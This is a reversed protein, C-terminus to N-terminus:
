LADTLEANARRIMVLGPLLLMTGLAGLWGLGILNPTQDFALIDQYATVLPLLPNFGLWFQVQDPVIALPYVIPSFWFLLQLLIPVVQGLDRVFVNIVGLILGVGLALSLTTGIAIPLWLIAFGPVHGLLTFIGLIALLLFANNVLAAGAVILPLTVKPFVMKKLLNGNDVFVNLCRTVVENFLTWGLFGACLYIAYGYRNEIGPLRASLVASLIFAYIAVMVLPHVIMWAGGLRSRAFRILLENRISSLIFYRYAWASRSIGLM